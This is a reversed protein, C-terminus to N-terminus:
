PVSRIRWFNNTTTDPANSFVLAGFSGAANTAQPIWNPSSLNSARDLAYNKLAIGVFNLEMNTHSLLQGSVQNYAALIQEPQNTGYPPTAFIYNAGDGLQGYAYAGMGWLSADDKILL